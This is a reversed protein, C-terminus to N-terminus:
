PLALFLPHARPPVLVTASSASERVLSTFHGPDGTNSAIAEYHMPIVYAPDVQSCLWAAETENMNGVIGNAERMHDRGNIPIMLVDPALASVAAPLEPYVLGDGAHFFRVGGIDVAYGLFRVPGGGPSFEYVVPQDGGLGHLAPVPHVIVGGDALEEGPVAGVLRERDLGGSVAVDIVPAPVVIRAGSNVACLERLFPLDMHDVHEHTCLVFTIDAFQAATAPPAYCRDARDTLFPDILVHCGAADLRFGAQGYWTVSVYPGPREAFHDTTNM